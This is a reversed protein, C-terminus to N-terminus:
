EGLGPSGAFEAKPLVVQDVAGGKEAWPWVGADLCAMELRLRVAKVVNWDGRDHEEGAAWRARWRAELLDLLAVAQGFQRSEKVRM